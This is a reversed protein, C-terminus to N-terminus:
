SSQGAPQFSWRGDVFHDRHPVRHFRWWNLLFAVASLGFFAARRDPTWSTRALMPVAAEILAAAAMITSLIAVTTLFAQASM